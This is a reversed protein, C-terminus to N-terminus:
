KSVILKCEKNILHHILYIDKGMGMQTDIVLEILCRIVEAKLGRPMMSSFRKNIERDIPISLRIIGPYLNGHKDLGDENVKNEVTM